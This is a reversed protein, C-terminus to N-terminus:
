EADTETETVAPHNEYNEGVQRREIVYKQGDVFPVQEDQLDKLRSLRADLESVAAGTMTFVGKDPHREVLGHEVLNRLTSRIDDEGPNLGTLDHYRRALEEVTWGSEPVDAVSGSLTWLLGRAPANHIAYRTPTTTDTSDTTEPHTTDDSM